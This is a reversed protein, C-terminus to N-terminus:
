TGATKEILFDRYSTLLSNKDVNPFDYLTAARSDVAMLRVTKGAAFAPVACHVRGSIFRSHKNVMDLVDSPSDLKKLEFGTGFIELPMENRNVYYIHRVKEKIIFILFEHLYEKFKEETWYGKAVGLRPDYWVVAAGDGPEFEHGLVSLFAPCPLVEHPIDYKKLIDSSLRSRVVTFSEKFFDVVEKDLMLSKQGLYICAGIGLFIMKSEPHLSKCLKLNKWKKSIHMLDWLFPSGSQIIFDFKEDPFFDSEVNDSTDRLNAHKVEYEKFSHNLINKIGLAIMGDTPVNPSPGITLIKM